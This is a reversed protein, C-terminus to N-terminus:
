VYRGSIDRERSTHHHRAHEVDTLVELNAVSNNLTNGDKHHVHETPLLPRDLLKEMLYRHEAVQGMGPVYIWRYGNKIGSRTKTQGIKLKFEDDAPHAEWYAKRAASM